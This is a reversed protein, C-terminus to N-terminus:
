LHVLPQPLYRSEPEPENLAMTKHLMLHVLMIEVPGLWGFYFHFYELSHSLVSESVLELFSSVDGSIKWKM